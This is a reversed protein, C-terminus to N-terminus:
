ENEKKKLKSNHWIKPQKLEAAATDRQIMCEYLMMQLCSVSEREDCLCLRPWSERIFAWFRRALPGQEEGPVTGQARVIVREWWGESTPSIDAEEPGM